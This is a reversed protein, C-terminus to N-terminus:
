KNKEESRQYQGMISGRGIVHGEMAQKLEDRTAGAPLDLTTDLAFFYFYYRHTGNPPCPSHYGTKGASNSGSVGPREGEVIVPQPDINWAIWHDFTGGPADPDEMILALTVTGEPIDEVNLPPSLEEGDCTYRAPIDGENKFAASTVIM